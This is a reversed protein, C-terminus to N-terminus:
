DEEDEYAIPARPPPEPEFDSDSDMDPDAPAPEAAYEDAYVPEDVPPVPAEAAVDVDDPPPPPPPPIVAPAEGAPAGEVQELDPVGAAASADRRAPALAEHEAREIEEESAGHMRKLELHERIADDLLGM